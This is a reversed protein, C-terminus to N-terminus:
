GYNKLYNLAHAEDKKIAEKLADVSEFHQENRIHKLFELCLQQGYLDQNLDFFYTEITKETGGVTPNTGINTIGYYTKNDIYTRTVYVGKQPILKYPVDVELNATPFQLTKGIGKGRVITGHIMYPYGLFTNATEINGQWLANRIKTSSISVDNLQKASIEEVEFDFVEGYEKLNEINATRNRGFRHDYGIIIKKAKLQNVLVDRVYEVASLRSFEKTFPHIVLHDLGIKKLLNKKEQLTNLMKLDNSQQLVMRPHPFFTLLTADLNEKRAIEILRVLITKHGLHVGDFTGITVVTNREAEFQSAGQHEKV